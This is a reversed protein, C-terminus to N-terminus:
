RWDFRAGGRITNGRRDPHAEQGGRSAWAGGPPLLFFSTNAARKTGQCGFGWVLLRRVAPGRPSVISARHSIIAAPRNVTIAYGHLCDAGLVSWAVANKTGNHDVVRTRGGVGGAM